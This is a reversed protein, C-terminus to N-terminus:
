NHFFGVKCEKKLKNSSKLFERITKNTKSIQEKTEIFENKKEEVISYLKKKLWKRNGDIKYFKGDISIHPLYNNVENENSLFFTTYRRLLFSFLDKNIKINPRM